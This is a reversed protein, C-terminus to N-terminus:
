IHHMQQPATKITYFAHNKRLFLLQLVAWCYFWTLSGLIYIFIHVVRAPISGSGVFFSWHNVIHKAIQYLTSNGVQMKTVYYSCGPTTTPEVDMQAIKITMSRTQPRMEPINESPTHRVALPATTEAKGKIYPWNQNHDPAIHNIMTAYSWWCALPSM